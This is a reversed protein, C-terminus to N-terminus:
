WGRRILAAPLGVVTAVMATALAVTPLVLVLAGIGMPVVFMAMARYTGAAAISRGQDEPSVAESALTAGLTQLLGGGIGSIFLFAGVLWLSSAVFSVVSIGVIALLTSLVASARVGMQRVRQAISSGLLAALNALSALIGIVLISHGADTLVLPLYSVTISRWTGASIGMWGAAVVGPQLWVPRERQGATPKRRVFPDHRTLMIAAPMAAAAIGGAIFLAVQLSSNGIFGSLVPGILLGTGNNVHMMSLASVAPRRGRVVHIQSGTFFYARAAGQLLQSLVFIWLEDSLGLLLCSVLMLSLALILFFKTPVRDMLPGMGMRAFIQTVAATAVLFGVAALSYGSAAAVLPILVMAMSLSTSFLLIASGALLDQRDPVGAGILRM